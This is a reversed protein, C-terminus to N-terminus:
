IYHKWWKALGALIALVFICFYVAGMTKDKETVTDEDPNIPNKTNM